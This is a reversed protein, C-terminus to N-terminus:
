SFVRPNKTEYGARGGRQKQVLLYLSFFSKPKFPAVPQGMMMTVIRRTDQRIQKNQSM